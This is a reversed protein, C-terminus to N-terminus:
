HGFAEGPYRGLFSYLLHLWITPPAPLKLAHCPTPPMDKTATVTPVHSRASSIQRATSLLQFVILFGLTQGM